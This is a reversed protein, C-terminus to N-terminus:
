MNSLILIASGGLFAGIGVTVITAPLGLEIDEPGDWNAPLTLAVSTPPITVNITLCASAYANLIPASGAMPNPKPNNAAIIQDFMCQECSVVSAVTTTSCLCNDDQCGVITTNALTCQTQCPVTSPDVFQFIETASINGISGGVQLELASARGAVAAAVLAFVFVTRM